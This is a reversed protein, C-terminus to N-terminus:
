LMSKALIASFIAALRTRSNIRQEGVVRHPPDPLLLLQRLQQRQAFLMVHQDDGIFDMLIQHEVTLM